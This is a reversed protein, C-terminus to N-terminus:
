KMEAEKEREKRDLEIDFAFDYQTDSFMWELGYNLSTLVCYGEQINPIKLFEHAETNSCWINGNSDNIGIGFEVFDLLTNQVILRNKDRGAFFVRDEDWGMFASALQCAHDETMDELRHLLLFAEGDFPALMVPRGTKPHFVQILKDRKFYAIVECQEWTNGVTVDRSAVDANAYQSMMYFLEEETRKKKNMNILM